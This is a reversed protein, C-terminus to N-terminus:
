ASRKSRRVVRLPVKVAGEYAVDDSRKVLSRPGRRGFRAEIGVARRFGRVRRVLQRLTRPEELDEEGGFGLEITLIELVEEPFGGVRGTETGSLILTRRGPALSRPVPVRLPLTHAGGNRRQVRLKVTIRQGPRVRRTASARVLVDRRLEPLVRMRVDMRELAPAPLDFEDVLSAAQSLDGFAAGISFYPNCFGFARPLAPSRYRLCMHLAVAAGSRTLRELVTRAALTGVLGMGAGLDLSREDALRTTLSVPARGEERASVRLPLYPPAPGVRGAVAAPGDETLAGVTHGGATTLKYTGLGLGPQGLPNDIVGYVYADQLFLRRAGLGDLAHGFAWVADGHRYAVTGVASLDLDGAAISAAVAAGPRLEQRPFGHVPGGPAQLLPRGARRAARALLLRTGPGLGSVTLPGTLPRAARALWRAGRAQPAAAPRETLIEEIPTALATRNGYEGLGESIAGVNRRVGAGDPCLIPSGSFGPGIGAPEVAPGSVRVLIRPGSIGVETAIVDLVEVDFSSITTGRVVSLGTCRMGPQVQSLPMVPDAASAAAPSAALLAAAVLAARIL